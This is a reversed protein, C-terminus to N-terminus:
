MFSPLRIGCWVTCSGYCSPPSGDCLFCQYNLSRQPSVCSCLVLPAITFFVLACSKQVLLLVYTEWRRSRPRSLGACRGCKWAAATSYSFFISYSFFLCDNIGWCFCCFFGCFLYVAYGLVLTKVAEIGKVAFPYALLCYLLDVKEIRM